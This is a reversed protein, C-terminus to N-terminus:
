GVAAKGGSQKKDAPPSPPDPFKKLRERRAKNDADIIAKAREEEAMIEEATKVRPPRPTKVVKALPSAAGKEVLTRFLGSPNDITEDAAMQDFRRLAAMVVPGAQTAAWEGTGGDIGRKAFEAAAAVGGIELLPAPVGNSSSPINEERRKEETTSAKTSADGDVGGDVHKRWKTQRLNKQLRAKAGNSLWKEARPFLIFDGHDELWGVSIMARLVGESDVLADVVADVRADVRGDVSESQAWSWIEVLTGVVTRRSLGTLKAIKLVKAKRPLTIDIPIWDGAM